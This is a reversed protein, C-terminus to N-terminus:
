DEAEYSMTRSERRNVYRIRVTIFYCVSNTNEDVFRIQPVFPECEVSVIQEGIDPFNLLNDQEEVWRCVDCVQEYTLVNINSQPANLDNVDYWTYCNIQFDEYVSAYPIINCEYNGLTDITEDYQRAPSAGQPLIINNGNESEGAISLL